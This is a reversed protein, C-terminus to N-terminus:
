RAGGLLGALTADYRQGGTSLDSSGGFAGPRPLAQQIVDCLRGNSGAQDVLGCLLTGPDNQVQNLVEGVNARTDLTGAQPNYTLSLNNLAVPGAELIQDLAERQKVLIQVVRNLGSINTRLTRRNEKVFGSVQDMAIGLNHLSAALEQREGALTTSVRGLSQNFDRVTSDNEALTSIFSELRAATGFLEDKNDDLTGTLDGLDGITQHFAEGQGGWNRATSDLLDSLAGDKNAGTPGLAVTLRDISGYVQDLELPTATHALDLEAGDALVEGGQFVPTLQVFRDGVISPSIIVARADAPVKVAADYSMTVKVDTAQPTVSEVRGVPVGLVRVDSGVYLSVTRPFSATLTRTDDGGVLTLGFAGVLVTVLVPPLWRRLRSM